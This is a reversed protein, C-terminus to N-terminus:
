DYKKQNIQMKELQVKLMRRGNQIASKVTNLSINLQNAVDLYSKDELFFLQICKRQEEKLNKLAEELLLLRQEKEVLTFLNSEDILHNEMAGEFASFQYSKSKRLFMLCENKITTHIWSKFNQIEHKQIKEGLREFLSMVLDEADEKKSVYKVSIALLFHGYREFFVDICKNNQDKKYLEILQDDSFSHYDIRHFFRIM